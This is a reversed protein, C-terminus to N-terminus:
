GPVKDLTRDSSLLSFLDFSVFSENKLEYDRLLGEFTYKLKTLFARSKKNEPSVYAEIRNLKLIDFCYDQIAEVAERTVGTGWFQPLTWFGIEAKRHVHDLDYIVATGMPQDSQSKTIVWMWGSKEAILNDAWELQERTEELTSFSVDYYKTVVPNSLGEFLFQLDSDRHQRLILRNTQLIPFASM